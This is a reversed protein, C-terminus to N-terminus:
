AKLAAVIEAATSAETLAAIQTKAKLANSVEAATPVYNGAKATTSSTGVTPTFTSPKGTIDAWASSITGGGIADLDAFTDVGNGRKLVGTDTTFILDNAGFITTDEALDEATGEYVKANYKLKAM